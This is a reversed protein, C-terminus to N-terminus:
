ISGRHGFEKWGPALHEPNQGTLLFHQFDRQMPMWKANEEETTQKDFLNQCLQKQVSLPLNSAAPPLSTSLFPEPTPPISIPDGYGLTMNTEFVFPLGGFSFPFPSSTLGSATPIPIPNSSVAALSTSTSSSSPIPSFSHSDLLDFSGATSKILNNEDCSINSLSSSSSFSSPDCGGGINSGFTPSNTSCLNNTPIISSPQDDDFLSSSAFPTNTQTRM